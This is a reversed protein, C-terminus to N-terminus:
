FYLLDSIIHVASLKLISNDELRVNEADVITLM